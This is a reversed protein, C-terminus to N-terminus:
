RGGTLRQRVAKAIQQPSTRTVDRAAERGLVVAARIADKFGIKKGEDYTRAYYSIPVEYIRVGEVRSMECTFEPDFGFRDEVLEIGDLIERRFVKYCTEMDTLNLNSVMNGMTTLVRNAVMHWFYQVRHPRSTFRSGYVVDAVGSLIPELLVPYESPDYELDADQVIVVDGRVEEFGRRLAAGKGRNEPLTVVRVEDHARALQALIQATGDTSADDVLIVQKRHDQALVRRVLEAVTDQENFCPIVVSVVLRDRDIPTRM